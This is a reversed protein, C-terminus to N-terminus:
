TMEVDCPVARSPEARDGVRQPVHVIDRADLLALVRCIPRLVVGLVVPAPCCARQKAVHDRPPMEQVPEAYPDPSTPSRRDSAAGEIEVVRWGVARVALRAVLYAILLGDGRM